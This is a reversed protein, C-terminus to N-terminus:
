SQETNELNKKSKQTGQIDTHIKPDAHRKRFSFFLLDSKSQSQISDTSWNPTCPVKVFSLRGICLCSHREFTNLKKWHHPEWHLHRIHTKNLKKRLMENDKMSNYTSRKMIENKQIASELMCFYLQKNKQTHTSRINQLRAPGM